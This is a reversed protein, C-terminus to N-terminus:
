KGAKLTAARIAKSEPSNLLMSFHEFEELMHQTLFDRENKKMLQKTVILSRVPKRALEEAKKTAFDLVESQPIKQNVLGIEIATEVTFFDGLMLIESAKRHGALKPLLLSSAAEPCVGLNVFPMRFRTKSAYVLDCHLLMTAGIGVAIGSVSAVIPKDFLHLTNLLKAGPSLGSFNRNEFDTLDNGATFAQENGHILVIRIDDSNSAVDIAARIEDYMQMTLANKKEPRNIAIQMVGNKIYIIIENVGSM